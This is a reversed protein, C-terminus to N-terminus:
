LSWWWPSRIDIINSVYHKLQLIVRHRRANTVLYDKLGKFGSNFGM